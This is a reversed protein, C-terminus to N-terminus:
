KRRSRRPMTLREIMELDPRAPSKPPVYLTSGYTVGAKPVRALPVRKIVPDCISYQSAEYIVAPHSPDYHEGLKQVLVALGRASCRSRLDVQGIAGIQWLILASTTDIRRGHVLFDTAEFSQCGMAGPDVGLDAVLCDLASIGPLMRANFGELRARRIAEHSPYVFVGPHGYFAVCVELGKRVCALIREIMERYTDLRAKGRGYLHELSEAQRNTQTIWSQTLPDAVLYLVKDAHELAARAEFSLQSLRIGTGVITLSGELM